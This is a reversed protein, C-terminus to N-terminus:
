NNELDKKQVFLPFDGSVKVSGLYYLNKNLTSQDISDGVQHWCELGMEHAVVDFRWVPTDIYNEWYQKITIQQRGCRDAEYQAINDSANVYEHEVTQNTM